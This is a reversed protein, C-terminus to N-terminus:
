HREVPTSPTALIRPTYTTTFTAAHFTGTPTFNCQPILLEMAPRVAETRLHNLETIAAESVSFQAAISALSDMEGVQYPIMECNKFSIKTSTSQARQTLPTPVPPHLPLQPSAPAGSSVFQWASFFFAIVVFSIAATRMTLLTSAKFTERRGILAAISLPAPQANWQRRMISPLLKAVETMERAYASCENCHRLHASLMAAEQANLTHEMNSQILQHAKDHTISM